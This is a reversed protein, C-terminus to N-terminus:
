ERVSIATLVGAGLYSRIQEVESEDADWYVDHCAAHLQISSRVMLAEAILAVPLEALLARACIPCTVPFRIGPERRGEDVSKLARM